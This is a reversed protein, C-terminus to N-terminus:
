SSVPLRRSTVVVPYGDKGVIVTPHFQWLADVDLTTGLQESSPLTPRRPWFDVLFGDSRRVVAVADVSELKPDGPVGFVRLKDVVDRADLVSPRVPAQGLAALTGSAAIALLGPVWRRGTM